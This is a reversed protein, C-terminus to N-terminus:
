NPRTKRDTQATATEQMVASAIVMRDLAELPPVRIAQDAPAASENAVPM